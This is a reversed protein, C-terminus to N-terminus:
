DGAPDPVPTPDPATPTLLVNGAGDHRHRMVLDIREHLARLLGRNEAGQQELRGVRDELRGVREELREVRATLAAMADRLGNVEGQLRGIQSSQRILAGLIVVQLLGMFGMFAYLVYANVTIENM